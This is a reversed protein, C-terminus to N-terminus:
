KQHETIARQVRIAALDSSDHSLAKILARQNEITRNQEVVLLTLLLFGLMFFAYIPSTRRRNSRDM